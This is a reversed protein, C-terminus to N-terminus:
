FNPPTLFDDIEAYKPGKACILSVYMKLTLYHKIQVETLNCFFNLTIQIDYFVFLPLHWSHTQKNNTTDSLLGVAVGVNEM